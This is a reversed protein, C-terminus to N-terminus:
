RFMREKPPEVPEPEPDDDDGGGGGGDGRFRRWITVIMIVVIGVYAFLMITRLTEGLVPELTRTWALFTQYMVLGLWVFATSRPKGTTRDIWYSSGEMGPTPNVFRHILYAASVLISGAVVYWLPSTFVDTGGTLLMFYGVLPVIFFITTNKSPRKLKM